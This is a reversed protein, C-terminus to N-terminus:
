FLCYLLTLMFDSKRSAMKTKVIKSLAHQFLTQTSPFSILWDSLLDGKSTHGGHKRSEVATATTTTTRVRGRAIGSAMTCM